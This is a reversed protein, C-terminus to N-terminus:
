DEEPMSVFFPIKVNNITEREIDLTKFIFSGDNDGLYEKTILWIINHTFFMFHKSVDMVDKYIKKFADNHNKRLICHFMSWAIINESFNFLSNGIGEASYINLTNDHFKNNANFMNKITDRDFHFSFKNRIKRVTNNKNTEDFYKELFEFSENGSKIKSKYKLSLETGCYSQQICKWGENLIGAFIRIFFYHQAAFEEEIITESSPPTATYFVYKYLMSICNSLHAFQVLLIRENEPMAALQSGKFEYVNIKM